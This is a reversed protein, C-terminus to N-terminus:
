ARSVRGFSSPKHGSHFRVITFGCSSDSFLLCNSIKQLYVVRLLPFLYSYHYVLFPVQQSLYYEIDIMWGGTDRKLEEPHRARQAIGTSSSSSNDQVFHHHFIIDPRTAQLLFYIQHPILKQCLSIGTTKM